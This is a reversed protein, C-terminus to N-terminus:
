SGESIPDHCEVDLVLMFLLRVRIKLEGTRPTLLVIATM